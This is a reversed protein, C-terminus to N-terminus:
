RAAVELQPTQVTATPQQSGLAEKIGEEVESHSVLGMVKKVIKGERNIYFTIPLGEVGGYLDAVAETGVLIPYTIKMEQAFKPVDKEPNDDMSVGVIVLGQSGYQKELDLFWPIELKCPGCWTAWFNLLVAKGRLDSLKMDKGDLTKLTFDPAIQGTANGASLKPSAGERKERMRKGAVLMGFVVLVVVVLVLTNRNM